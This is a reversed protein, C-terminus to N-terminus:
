SCINHTYLYSLMDQPYVLKEFIYIQIVLSFQPIAVGTYKMFYPNNLMSHFWTYFDGCNSENITSEQYGKM